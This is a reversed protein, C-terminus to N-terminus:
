PASRRAPRASSTTAPSTASPSSSARTPPPSRTRRPSAHASSRSSRTGGTSACGSRRARLAGTLPPPRPHPCPLADGAARLRRRTRAPRGAPQVQARHRARQLVIRRGQLPGRIRRRRRREPQGSCLACLDSVTQTHVLEFAATAGHVGLLRLRRARAGLADGLRSLVRRVGVALM